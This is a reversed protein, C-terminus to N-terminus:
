MQEIKHYKLLRLLFKLVFLPESSEELSQFKIQASFNWSFVKDEHDSGKSTLKSLDVKRFELFM